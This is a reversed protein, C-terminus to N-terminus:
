RASVKKYRKAAKALPGGLRPPNLLAAVFTARDRVSLILAEHEQVARKASEYASTMVFDTLSRGQLEAAKEILEKQAPTTRLELRATQM